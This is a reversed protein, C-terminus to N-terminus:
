FKRRMRYLDVVNKYEVNTLHAVGTVFKELSSEKVDVCVM